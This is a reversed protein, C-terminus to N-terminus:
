GIPEEITITRVVSTRAGSSNSVETMVKVVQSVIFPGLANGSADLPASHDFSPDVGEVQWKILRTTAHDGGGAVYSVLVHLGDEGGQTVTNIEIADPAPTGQETPISDVVQPFSAASFSFAGAGRGGPVASGVFGHWVAPFDSGSLIGGGRTAERGARHFWSVFGDM